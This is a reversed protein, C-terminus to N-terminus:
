LAVDLDMPAYGQCYANTSDLSVDPPRPASGKFQALRAPILLDTPTGLKRAVKLGLDFRSIRTRGGLHLIREPSGLAQLLGRAASRADVPTRWEDTFLTVPEAAALRRIVQALFTPDPERGSGILLPLRGVVARPHRTQVAHEAAAKQEGYRCIPSPPDSEAYPPRRGDFVMDTSVLVLRCGADACLGALDAAATVNIAHTRAPEDQCRESQAEAAAHILAAPKSRALIHKITAYDTLDGQLATVGSLPLTNRRGLGVVRWGKRAERCLHGGLFGSAGTILLKELAPATSM